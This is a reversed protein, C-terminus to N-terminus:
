KALEPGHLTLRYVGETGTGLYIVSPHIPDQVMTRVPSGFEPNEIKVWHAGSDESLLVGGFTNDAALIREGKPDLFILASISVGLQEGPVLAWTRAGDQSEYLGTSTGAFMHDESGPVFRLCQVITHDPIGTTSFQWTVGSDDSRLVGFHTGAFILSPKKGSALLSFVRPIFNYGSPKEFRLEDLRARYIGDNTGAFVWERTSDLALDYVILKSIPGALETWSGSSNRSVFAGRATGALRGRDGPLFVLSLLGVGPAEGPSLPEWREAPNDYLYFGGVKGEFLEGVILRGSSTPDPLIRAISRNVFGTNSEAWTRGGDKSRLVGYLETGILLANSDAPDVQIANITLDSSTIRLWTQGSDRSLFLGETTGGYVRESHNPDVYVVQARVLYSKPFIKLRTWSAGRDVSRYLGTCASAFVTRPDRKDICISFLDSDAIMGRSNQVWTRGFDTSRYGLHWTGVYLLKPDRPDIAVSEAQRFAAIRAGRKLWTKGGDASVFIGAGTGAIMHSPHGGSIAFARVAPDTAPLRVQDWSRGADKSEFLGGGDSRLDWGGAFLHEANRPDEVISDVVFQRRRLGPYLFEWSAGGDSSKFLQGDNTGIYVLRRGKSSILLSRVTGGDPGIREFRAEPISSRSVSLLASLILLSAPLIIGKCSFLAATRSENGKRVM